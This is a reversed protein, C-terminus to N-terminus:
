SNLKCKYEINEGLPKLEYLTPENVNIEGNGKLPYRFYWKKDSFSLSGKKLSYPLMLNKNKWNINIFAGPEVKYINEILSYDGNINNRIILDMQYGDCIYSTNITM